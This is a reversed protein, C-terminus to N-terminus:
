SLGARASCATASSWRWAPSSRSRRSSISRAEPSSAGKSRSIGPHLLRADRGACIRRGGLRLRLRPGLVDQARRRPLPVRLGRRPLGARDADGAGSFVAGPHHHRLGAPLGCAAGPRRAGAMNRQRGLDARDLEHRHQAVAPRARLRLPHRRRPRLRRAARLLLHRRRPHHGLHPRLEARADMMGRGERQLQVTIPESPRGGEIPTTPRAGEPEPGKRIIRAMVLLRGPLHDSLRGHLVAAVPARGLGDAVALGRRGDADARLRDLAPPRGRDDDLRRPGRRLRAAGVLMCARLFLPRDFLRGRWRLWWSAVVLGLMLLGIGVMIRFAFFPLAVPPRQDAPFDKLGKVTGDLSHTLILSGLYRFEITFRNTANADDPITFLILPM